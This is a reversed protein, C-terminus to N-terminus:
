PLRMRFPDDFAALKLQLSLILNITPALLMLVALSLLFQELIM